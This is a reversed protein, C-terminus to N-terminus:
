APTASALAAPARAGPAPAVTLAASVPAAAQVPVAALPVPTNRNAYARAALDNAQQSDVGIVMAGEEAMALAQAYPAGELSIQLAIKEIANQMLPALRDADHASVSDEAARQMAYTEVAASITAQDYTM